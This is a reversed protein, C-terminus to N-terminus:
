YCYHRKIFVLHKRRVEENKESYQGWLCVYEDGAIERKLLDNVLAVDFPTKIWENNSMNVDGLLPLTVFKENTGFLLSHLIM